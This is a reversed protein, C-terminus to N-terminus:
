YLVTTNSTSLNLAAAVWDTECLIEVVNYRRDSGTTFAPEMDKKASAIM